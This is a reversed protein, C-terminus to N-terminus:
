NCTQILQDHVRNLYVETKEDSQQPIIYLIKAAILYPKRPENGAPQEENIVKQLYQLAQAPNDCYRPLSVKTSYWSIWQSLALILICVFIVLRVPRFASSLQETNEPTITEPM